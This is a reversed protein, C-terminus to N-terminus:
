LPHNRSGSTSPTINPWWMPMASRWFEAQGRAYRAEADRDKKDRGTTWGSRVSHMHAEREYHAAVEAIAEAATSATLVIQATM